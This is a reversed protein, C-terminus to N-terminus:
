YTRGRTPLSYPTFLTNRYDVGYDSDGLGPACLPKPYERFFYNLRSDALPYLRDLDVPSLENKEAAISKGYDIEAGYFDGKNFKDLASKRFLSARKKALAEERKRQIEAVMRNEEAAQRAVAAMLGDRGGGSQKKSIKRKKRSYKSRKPAKSAKSAKPTKTKGREARKTKRGKAM